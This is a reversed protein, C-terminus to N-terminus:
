GPLGNTIHIFSVCLLVTGLCSMPKIYTTYSFHYKLLALHYKVRVIEGVTDRVINGVKQRDRWGEWLRGSRGLAEGVNGWGGRCEWLRGSRGWHTLTHTHEQTRTRTVTHPCPLTPKYQHTPTPSHTFIYKLAHM